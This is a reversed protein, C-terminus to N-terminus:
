DAPTPYQIRPDPMIVIMGKDPDNSYMAAVLKLGRTVYWYQPCIM